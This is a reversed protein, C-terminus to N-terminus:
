DWWAVVIQQRAAAASIFETLTSLMTRHFRHSISIENIGSEVGLEAAHSVVRDFQEISLRIFEDELELVFAYEIFTVKSYVPDSAPGDPSEENLTVAKKRQRRAIAESHPLVSRLCSIHGEPQRLATESSM